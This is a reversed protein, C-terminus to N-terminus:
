TTRGDDGGGALDVAGGGGGGGGGTSKFGLRDTRLTACSCRLSLSKMFLRDDYVVGGGVIMTCRPLLSLFFLPEAFSIAEENM